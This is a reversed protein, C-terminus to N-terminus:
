CIIMPTYEAQTASQGGRFSPRSKQRITRKEHIFSNFNYNGFTPRFPWTSHIETVGDAAGGMVYQTNTGNLTIDFRKDYGRLFIEAANTYAGNPFTVEIPGSESKLNFRARHGEGIAGLSWHQANTWAGSSEGNVELWENETIQSAFAQAPLFAPLFAITLLITKIISIMNMAHVEKKPSM